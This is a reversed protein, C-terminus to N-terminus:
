CKNVRWVPIIKCLHKHLWLKNTGSYIIDTEWEEVQLVTNTKANDQSFYLTFNFHWNAKWPIQELKYGRMDRKVPKCNGFCSHHWVKRGWWTNTTKELEKKKKKESVNKTRGKALKIRSWEQNIEMKVFNRSFFESLEGSKYHM